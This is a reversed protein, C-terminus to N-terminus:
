KGKEKGPAAKEPRKRGGRERWDTPSLGSWSRFARSFHFPDEFGVQAAVEHVAVATDELIRRAHRMRLDNLYRMPTVGCTAKFLRNAYAAAVGAAEAVDDLRVPRNVSRHLFELMKLVKSPTRGAGGAAADCEEIRQYIWAALQRDVYRRNFPSDADGELRQALQHWFFRNRNGIQWVAGERMRHTLDKRMVPDNLRVLAIYQLVSQGRELIEMRHLVNPKTYFFSGERVAVQKGGFEFQGRGSLVYHFEYEAHAHPKISAEIRACLRIQIVNM